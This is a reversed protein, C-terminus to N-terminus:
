RQVCVCVVFQSLPQLQFLISPSQGGAKELGGDDRLLLQKWLVNNFMLTKLADLVPLFAPQSIEINSCEPTKQDSEPVDFCSSPTVM